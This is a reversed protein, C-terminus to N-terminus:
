TRILGLVEDAYRDIKTKGIGHIRSLGPVDEPKAEAIAMLTADTFICYAPLKQTTAQQSRWQRLSEYLQEDYTAPCDECRGRKRDAAIHLVKNCERCRSVKRAGSQRPARAAEHDKPLLPDLFRTPKRSGGGGAKRSRSWSVMLHAKARTIGVYFLRREEEIEAANSAHVSPMTGEQMGACFVSEWELGKASHLTSLTVGDSTPAHANAARGHLDAVFQDLGAQADAEAVDRAMSVLANLSEWRDRTAGSAAPPKNTYDITRLITIVEGVLDNSTEATAAARLLAIAQRVEPREFFREAGRLAYAIGRQGLAQEYAASQANVRYLIAMERLPIGHTQLALVRDAIAAAEAPEDAFGQYRVDEGDASQSQLRVGRLSQDVRSFTDNAAGIIQPTSRYNRVLAIHTADKHQRGFSTLLGPSAGAFSYITQLPDGVVCIDDRGGLWQDLLTAQLPNVDQYEDVVFWRYQRRVQAAVRKDEALLAATCLLIDEMDIRNSQRKVEEYAAFLQGVFPADLGAVARGASGGVVPYEAPQVNSVKAWEIESAVDRVATKDLTTQCHRAAAHLLPIKSQTVEPLDGGFVHPWFYRAQRLAASHFTRAQVGDAGLSRLRARMQAAARTTFTVALVENPKYVGIAAGYAIRHTISRTKGTGAGAVVCVPGRLATAVERQEPDLGMLLDDATRM